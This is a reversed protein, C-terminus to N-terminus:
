REQKGGRRVGKRRSEDEGEQEEDAYDEKM